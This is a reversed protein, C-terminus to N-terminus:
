TSPAAGAVPPRRWTRRGSRSRSPHREPQADRRASLAPHEGGGIPLIVRRYTLLLPGSQCDSSDRHCGRLDATRDPLCRSLRPQAVHTSSLRAHGRVARRCRGIELRQRLPQLRRRRRGPRAELRRRSPRGRSLPRLLGRARGGDAEPELRGAARAVSTFPDLPPNRRPTMSVHRQSLFERKRMGQADRTLGMMHEIASGSQWVLVDALRHDLIGPRRAGLRQREPIGGGDAFGNARRREASLPDRGSSGAAAFRWADWEKVAIDIWGPAGLPCRLGSRPLSSFGDQARGRGDVITTKMAREEWAAKRARGIRLGPQSEGLLRGPLGVLCIAALLAQTLTSEAERLM